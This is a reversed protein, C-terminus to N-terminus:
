LPYNLLYDALHKNIGNGTEVKPLIHDGGKNCIHESCSRVSSYGIITIHQQPPDYYQRIEATIQDGREGDLYYDMLIIQPILQKDDFAEDFAYYLDRSRYFSCLQWDNVSAVTTASVQHWHETDDLHWIYRM